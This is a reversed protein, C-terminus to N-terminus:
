RLLSRKGIWLESSLALITQRVITLRRSEVLALQKPRSPTTFFAQFSSPKVGNIKRLILIKRMIAPMNLFEQHFQNAIIVAVLM